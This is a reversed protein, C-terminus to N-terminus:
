VCLRLASSSSTWATTRIRFSPHALRRAGAPLRALRPVPRENLCILVIASDYAAWGGGSLGSAGSERPLIARWASV